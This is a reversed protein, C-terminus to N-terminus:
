IFILYQNKFILLKLNIKTLLFRFNKKFIIKLHVLFRLYMFTYNCMISTNLMSYSFTLLVHTLIIHSM